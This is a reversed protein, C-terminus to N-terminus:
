YMFPTGMVCGYHQDKARVPNQPVPFIANLEPLCPFYPWSKLSLSSCLCYQPVPCMLFCIKSPPVPSCAGKNLPFWPVPVGGSQSPRAFTSDALCVLAYFIIYKNWSLPAYCSLLWSAHAEVDCQGRHSLDCLVVFACVLRLMWLTQDAGKNNVIM